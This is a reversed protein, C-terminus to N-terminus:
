GVLKLIRRTTEDYAGQAEANAKHTKVLEAKAANVAAQLNSREDQLDRVARQTVERESNLAALIKRQEDIKNTLEDVNGVRAEIASLEELLESVKQM